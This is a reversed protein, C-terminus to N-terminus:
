SLDIQLVNVDLVYVEGWLLCVGFAKLVLAMRADKSSALIFFGSPPLKMVLLAVVPVLADSFFKLENLLLEKAGVEGVRVGRWRESSIRFPLTDGLFAYQLAFAVGVEFNMSELRNMVM